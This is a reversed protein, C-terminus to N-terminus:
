FRPSSIFPITAGSIPRFLKSFGYTFSRSRIRYLQGKWTKFAIFILIVEFNQAERGVEDGPRKERAKSTPRSFASADAPWVTM